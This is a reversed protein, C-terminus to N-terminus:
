STKFKKCSNVQKFVVELNQIEIADVYDNFNSAITKDAAPQTGPRDWKIHKFDKGGLASVVNKHRALEPLFLEYIPYLIPKFTQAYRKPVPDTSRTITAISIKPFTVSLEWMTSHSEPFDQFLAFLPYKSNKTEETIGNNLQQLQQLIQISRGYQYFIGKAPSPYLKDSVAKVVEGITEVIYLPATTM